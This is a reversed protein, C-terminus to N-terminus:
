RLEDGENKGGEGAGGVWFVRWDQLGKRCWGYIGQETQMKSIIDETELSDLSAGSVNSAVSYSRTLQHPCGLRHWHGGTCLFGTDALIDVSGRVPEEARGKGKDFVSLSIEQVEVGDEGLAVLQLFPPVGASHCVRPTVHSPQSEWSLTLFPSTNSLNAPLPAPLVQTQKGRTLFYVARPSSSQHCLNTLRV